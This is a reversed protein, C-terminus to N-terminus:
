IILPPYNMSPLSVGIRSQEMDFMWDIIRKELHDWGRKRTEGQMYKSLTAPSVQLQKALAIQKIRKIKIYDKLAILITQNPGKFTPNPQRDKPNPGRRRKKKEPPSSSDTSQEDDNCYSIVQGIEKDFDFFSSLANPSPINSPGILPPSANLVNNNDPPLQSEITAQIVSLDEISRMPEEFNLALESSSASQRQQSDNQKSARNCEFHACVSYQFCPLHYMSGCHTCTTALSNDNFSISCVECVLGRETEM